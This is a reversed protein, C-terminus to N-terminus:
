MSETAATIRGTITEIVLEVIDIEMADIDEDFVRIPPFHRNIEATDFRAAESAPLERLQGTVLISWSDLARPDETPATEYLLYCATATDDMFARKQSGETWGFRFYLRGEDDYYHVLPIAYATDDSALALVGSDTERLRREVESEDMGRTYTYDIHQLTVVTNERPPAQVALRIFDGRM